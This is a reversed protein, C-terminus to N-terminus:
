PQSVSSSSAPNRPMKKQGTSCTSRQVVRRRRRQRHHEHQAPEQKAHHEARAQDLDAAIRAPAIQRAEHVVVLGLGNGVQQAPEEKLRRRPKMADARREIVEDLQQATKARATAVGAGRRRCAERDRKLGDQDQAAVQRKQIPERDHGREAADVIRDPLLQERARMTAARRSPAGRRLRARLGRRRDTQARQHHQEADGRDHVHQRWSWRM